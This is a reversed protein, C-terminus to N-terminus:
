RLRRTLKEQEENHASSCVPGAGGDLGELQITAIDGGYLLIVLSRDDSFYHIDVVQGLHESVPFPSNM